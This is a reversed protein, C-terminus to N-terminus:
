GSKKQHLFLHAESTENVKVFDLLTKLTVKPGGVSCRMCHSHVSLAHLESV